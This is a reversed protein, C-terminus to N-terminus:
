AAEQKKSLKSLWNQFDGLLYEIGRRVFDEFPKHAWEKANLEPKFYEQYDVWIRVEGEDTQKVTYIVNRYDDVGKRVLAEQVPLRKTFRLSLSRADRFDQQIFHQVPTEQLASHCEELRFLVGYRSIDSLHAVQRLSELVFTSFHTGLTEIDSTERTDVRIEFIADSEDLKLERQAM